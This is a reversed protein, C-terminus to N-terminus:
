LTGDQNKRMLGSYVLSVLDQDAESYALIPNIFRPTGIIGEAVQGGHRPVHVMFRRNVNELLMVTSIVLVLLLAYFVKWEKRSFSGFVSNLQLRTPLIRAIKARFTNNNEM